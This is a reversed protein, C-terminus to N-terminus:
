SRLQEIRRIGNKDLVIRLKKIEVHHVGSKKQSINKIILDLHYVKPLRTTIMKLSKPDLSFHKEVPDSAKRLFRHINFRFIINVDHRRSQRERPNFIEVTRKYLLVNEPRIFNELVEHFDSNRETQIEKSIQNEDLFSVSEKVVGIDHKQDPSQIVTSYDSFWRFAHHYSLNKIWEKIRDKLIYIIVTFVIFPESNILFVNGLWIFLSFYILMAIGAAISGIWDQYRQELTFRSTHLLLADLVFKNLLSNRYLIQEKNRFSHRISKSSKKPNYRENIQQEKLITDCLAKDAAILNKNPHLRINELLGTLYHLVSNSIFEDIYLFQDFFIPDKWNSKYKEQAIVFENRMQQIHQCLQQVHHSLERNKEETNDRKLELFLKKVLARLTSRVINGLLKLEDSLIVRNNPTDPSDCIKMIRVIPSRKNNLNLLEEFSFEPTKYRILNTQDFYFQAKTYTHRNIQLSNPIFFYFEQIYESHKLESHPFFESKLELQWKDRLHVEGSDLDDAFQEM